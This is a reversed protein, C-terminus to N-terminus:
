LIVTLAFIVACAAFWGILIGNLLSQNKEFIVDDDTWRFGVPANLRKNLPSDSV